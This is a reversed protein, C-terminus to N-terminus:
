LGCARCTRLALRHFARFFLNCLQVLAWGMVGGTRLRPTVSYTRNELISWDPARRVAQVRRRSAVIKPANTALWVIARLKALVGKRGLLLMHGWDVLDALGLGPLLLLMTSWRWNRLLLLYRNRESYFLALRGPALSQDHYATSQPTCVCRYGGLQARWSLDTEEFYMFLDPDFGGLEEWVKRCISFSAGSVAGVIATEAYRDASALFGRGFALGAFHVDQGCSNIKDPESMLLLKSTCLDATGDTLSELLASLWGPRVYTDQNLFVLFSGSSLSAAQNCAAAFGTNGSNRVLKVAPFRSAIFDASGDNSANDVVVIEQGTGAEQLVSTLCRELYPLGNYSILIISAKPAM